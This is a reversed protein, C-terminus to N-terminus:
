EFVGCFNLMLPRCISYFFNSASPANPKMHSAYSVFVFSYNANFLTIHIVYSRTFDANIYFDIM